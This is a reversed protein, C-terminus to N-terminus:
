VADTLSTFSFDHVKVPPVVHVGAVRVPPGLQEVNNLAFLPSETFRLNKV